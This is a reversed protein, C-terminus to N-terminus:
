HNIDVNLLLKRTRSIINLDFYQSMIQTTKDKNIHCKLQEGIDTKLLEISDRKLFQEIENLQRKKASINESSPVFIGFLDRDLLFIKLVLYYDMTFGRFDVMNKLKDFERLFSKANDTDHNFVYFGSFLDGFRRYAANLNKLDLKFPNQITTRAFSSMFIEYANRLDNLLKPSALTIKTRFGFALTKKKKNLINTLYRIADDIQPNNISYQDGDIAIRIGKRISFLVDSLTTGPGDNEEIEHFNTKIGNNMLKKEIELLSSFGIDCPKYIVNVQLGYPVKNAVSITRESISNLENFSQKDNVFHRQIVTVKM